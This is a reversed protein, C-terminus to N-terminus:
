NKKLVVQQSTFEYAQDLMALIQAWKAVPIRQQKYVKDFNIVLKGDRVQAKTTFNVYENDINNNLKQLSEPAISYGSPITLNM